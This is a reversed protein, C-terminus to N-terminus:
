NQTSIFGDNNGKTKTKEKSVPPVLIFSVSGFQCAM